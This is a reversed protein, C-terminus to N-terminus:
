VEPSMIKLILVAANRAPVKGSFMTEEKTLKRKLVSDALKGLYVYGDTPTEKVLSLVKGEVLKYERIREHISIESNYGTNIRYQRWSELITKVRGLDDDNKESPYVNQLMLITHEDYQYFYPNTNYLDVTSIMKSVELDRPRDRVSSLWEYLENFNTFILSNGRNTDNDFDEYSKYYEKIYLEPNGIIGNTKRDYDKIMDRMKLYFAKNHFHVLGDYCFSVGMNGLFEIGNLVSRMYPLKRHINGVQYYDYGNINGVDGEVDQSDEFGIYTFYDDVFNEAFETIREGERNMCYSTATGYDIVQVKYIEYLWRVIQIIKSIKAKMLHLTSCRNLQSVNLSNVSTFKM